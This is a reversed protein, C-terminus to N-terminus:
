ECFISVNETPTISSGVSHFTSVRNKEYLFSIHHSVFRNNEIIFVILFSRLITWDIIKAFETFCKVMIMKSLWRCIKDDTQFIKWLNAAYFTRMFWIITRFLGTEECKSNKRLINSSNYLVHKIQKEWRNWKLFNHSQHVVRNWFSSSNVSFVKQEIVISIAHAM